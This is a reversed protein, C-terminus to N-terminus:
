ENRGPDASEPGKYTNAAFCVWLLNHLRLQLPTHPLVGLTSDFQIVPVCAYYVFKHQKEIM